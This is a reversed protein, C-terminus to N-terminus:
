PLEPIAINLTNEGPKVPARLISKRNFEPPIPNPPLPAGKRRIFAEEDDFAFGLDPTGEVEIRSEGVILKESLPISYDGDRIAASVTPGGVPMFLIRGRELPQGGVTVKGKMAGYGAESRGCGSLALTAALFCGTWVSTRLATESM